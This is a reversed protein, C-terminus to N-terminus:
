FWQKDTMGAPILGNERAWAYFQPYVAARESRGLRCKLAEMFSWRQEVPLERLAKALQVAYATCSIRCDSEHNSLLIRMSDFEDRMARHIDANIQLNRSIFAAAATHNISFNM